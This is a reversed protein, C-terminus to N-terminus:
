TPLLGQLARVAAHVREERAQVSRAYVDLRETVSLLADVIEALSEESAPQAPATRGGTPAIVPITAVVTPPAKQADNTHTVRHRGLSRAKGTWGCPCSTQAELSHQM